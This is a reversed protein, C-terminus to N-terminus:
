WVHPEKGPCEAYCRSAEAIYTVDCDHLDNLRQETALGMFLAYGLLCVLRGRPDMVYKLCAALDVSYSAAKEAFKLNAARQCGGRNALAKADCAVAYKRAM